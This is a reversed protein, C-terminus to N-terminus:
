CPINQSPRTRAQASSLVLLPITGKPAVCTMSCASTATEMEQECVMPDEPLNLFELVYPDRIFDTPNHKEFEADRTLASKKEQSALLREYYLTHINRDLVRVSWSQESAERLYYERAQPNDVRMVLRCHSWTLKACLTYLIAEEPFTLYFKRFGALNTPSFGNGVERTLQKSLSKILQTGYEARGKGQQEEEVIRKGIQWYAEVMASNVAAYSRTRADHLIHQIDTVLQNTNM